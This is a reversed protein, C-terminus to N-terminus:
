AVRAAAGVNAVAARKSAARRRRCQRGTGRPPPVRRAGLDAVVAARESPREEMRRGARSNVEVRARRAGRHRPVGADNKKNKDIIIAEYAAVTTAAKM